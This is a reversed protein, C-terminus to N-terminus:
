QGPQTGCLKWEKVTNLSFVASFQPGGFDLSDVM